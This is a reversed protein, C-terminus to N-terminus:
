KLLMTTIINLVTMLAAMCQVTILLRRGGSPELITKVQNFDINSLMKNILTLPTPYFDKISEFM